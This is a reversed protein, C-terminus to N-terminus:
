SLCLPLSHSASVPFAPEMCPAWYPVQDWSELIGGQASPLREVVSGGLAGRKIALRLEDM